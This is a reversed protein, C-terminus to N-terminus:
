QIKEIKINTPCLSCQEIPNKINQLFELIVESDDLPSCANYKEILEQESTKFQKTLESGVATVVCKYLNGNVIYHCEKFICVDHAAIVDSKYFNIINNEISKVSSCEFQYKRHITYFIQNTDEQFFTTRDDYGSLDIPSTKIKYSFGLEQLINEAAQYIKEYDKEHHVSIELQMGLQIIEKAIKRAKSKELLTGNTAVTINKHETWTSRIGQVWNLLDPNLFPEGGLISVRGPDIFKPWLSNKEKHENWCTYGKFNLNNFSCCNNCALNCDNNIYYQVEKIKIPFNM